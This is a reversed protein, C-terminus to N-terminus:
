AEHRNLQSRFRVGTCIVVSGNDFNDPWSAKRRRDAKVQKFRHLHGSHRPRQDDTLQRNSPRGRLGHIVARDGRANLGAVLHRVQRDDVNLELGAQKQTIPKKKATKLAVLRDREAQTM